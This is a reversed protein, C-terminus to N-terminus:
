PHRSVWKVAAEANEVETEFFFVVRTGKEQPTLKEVHGKGRLILPEEERPLKIVVDLSTQEEQLEALRKTTPGTPTDFEIRDYHTHGSVRAGTGIDRKLGYSVRKCQIWEGRPLEDGAINTIDNNGTVATGNAEFRVFAYHTGAFAAGPLALLAATAASGILFTRRDPM